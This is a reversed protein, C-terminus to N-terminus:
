LCAGYQVDDRFLAPTLPDCMFFTDCNDGVPACWAVCLNEPALCLRGAACDSAVTCPEGQTAGGSRTCDWDESALDFHCTVDGLSSDCPSADTAVCHSTCLKLDPIVAGAESAEYCVGGGCEASSSCVPHCVSTLGDCWTGAVCDSDSTCATWAPHSGANVCGREGTSTDLVSCKEDGRCDGCPAGSAGGQSSGGGADGAGGAQGEFSLDTLGALSNCGWGALALPAFRAARRWM